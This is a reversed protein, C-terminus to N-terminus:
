AKSASLAHPLDVPRDQHFLLVGEEVAVKRMESTYGSRSFLCFREKRGKRGWVVSHSKERLNRYVDTGVCRRSWKVEGFLIENRERNVAVIDIEQEKNWWRGYSEFAYPLGRGSVYDKLISRAVREYTLSLSRPLGSTVNRIVADKRGEELLHRNAFVFQFWFRVYMDQIVYLGRRSKEPVKETVPVERETLGLDSLISLYRSTTGKDFGTENMIESMRTKGLSLARLIAFYNRPEKLEERLLFEAEQHLFHGKELLTNGLTKWVDRRKRFHNLYAITGGVFSYVLLREEFGLRPFIEGFEHFEFPRLLIQGTRRGYLPAKYVLTTEEMMSISSGCLILCVPSDKLYLDWGKQFLSPIAPQAEVLYPFEDVVIILRERKHALYRFLDEWEGFGRRILLEDQFFKGVAQSVGRLQLNDPLRDALFYIHPKDRWFQLLLETKGLRRRGYVIILQAEKAEWRSTLFDLEYKRGVFQSM